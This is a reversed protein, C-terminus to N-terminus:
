EYQRDKLIKDLESRLAFVRRGMQTTKINYKARYARWTNHTIHLMKCVEEADIWEDQSQPTLKKEILELIGVVRQWEEIPISVFTQNM